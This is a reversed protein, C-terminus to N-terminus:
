RDTKQEESKRHAFFGYAGKNGNTPQKGIQEDCLLDYEETKFTRCAIDIDDASHNAHTDQLLKKAFFFSQGGHPGGEKYKSKKSDHGHAM